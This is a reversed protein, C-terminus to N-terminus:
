PVFSLNEFYYIRDAPLPGYSDSGGLGFDAFVTAKDYTKALDLQATPKTSDLPPAFGPNDFNFTLTEWAGSGATVADTECSISPDGSNEVKLRVRVGAAPSFFRLTMTKASNTFPIKGVADASATSITTGAWGASATYKYVKVVKNGATLPDDSIEAAIKGAPEGFATLKPANPEDLTISVFSAAPPAVPDDVLKIDDFYYIEGAGVTGLNPLLTVTHYAKTFDIGPVTWTLTQWGQIVTEAPSAEGSGFNNPWAGGGEFKLKMPTGAVPVYVRATVTKHSNTLPLTGTSISVGGWVQGGTRVVKLANGSGGAPGAAISSGEAGDFGFFTPPTSEDFTALVNINSPPPAVYDDVLRINDFYYVEGAGVTGLNPLLTVTHYSKSYDVGDLEWTLTQWGQVVTEKPSVEASGYNNPWAGGGEVKVKMPTGAVSVYVRAVITKKTSTLPLTGTPLSVGGWVQGGSRLVKLAKGAGGSPGAEISSGEAGDFGLFSPAVSEDFTALVIGPSATTDYNQSAATAATNANGELDDFKNSAVSVSVAGVASADPTVELTYVRASVKTFTGATGGSVVVDGATFASLLTDKIDESFTFTFTVKGTATTDAVNDTITVTPPTTDAPDAGGCASVLLAAALACASLSLSKAFPHM